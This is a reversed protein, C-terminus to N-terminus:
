KATLRHDRNSHARAALREQHADYVHLSLQAFKERIPEDVKDLRNALREVGPGNNEATTSIRELFRTSEIFNVDASRGLLPHLTKTLAEVGLHDVQLFVDLRNSVLTRGDETDTYGSKLLLVCRGNLRNHFLPGEYDGECYILHTDNTGYVLEVRSRTGVGDTTELTYPGLRTAAVKTIGMLQWINVVVEPYRILFRHLKPDCDIVNVPMRRFMTPKTVVHSIKKRAEPTLGQFPIEQIAQERVTRSTEAKGHTKAAQAPQQNGGLAMLLIAIWCRAGSALVSTSTPTNSSGTSSDCCIM